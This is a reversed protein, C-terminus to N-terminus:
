RKKVNKRQQIVHRWGEIKEKFRPCASSHQNDYISMSEYTPIMANLMKIKLQFRKQMVSRRIDLRCNKAQRHGRNEWYDM